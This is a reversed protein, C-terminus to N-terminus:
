SGCADEDGTFALLESDFGAFYEFVISLPSVAQINTEVPKTM